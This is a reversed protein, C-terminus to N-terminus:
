CHPIRRDVEALLEQESAGVLVEWLEPGLIHLASDGHRHHRDCLPLVYDHNRKGLQVQVHHIEAPSDEGFGLNRCALCGLARVRDHRRQQAATPRNAM